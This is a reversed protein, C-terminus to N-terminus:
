INVYHNCRSLLEMNRNAFLAGDGLMSHEYLVCQTEAIVLIIDTEFSFSVQARLLQLEKVGDRIDQITGDLKKEGHNEIVIETAEEMILKLLQSQLQDYPGSKKISRYIALDTIKRFDYVVRREGRIFLQFM